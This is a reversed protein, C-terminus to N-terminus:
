APKGLRYRCVQAGNIQWELREVPAQMLNTLVEAERECVSPFDHALAALPCHHVVFDRQGRHEEVEVLFSISEYFQAVSGVREEPTPSDMVELARQEGQQIIDRIFEDVLEPSRQRLFQVLSRVVRQSLGPFLNAGPETLAYVHRRRGRGSGTERYSVLGDTRLPALAQRITSVTLHLYEALEEASLEGHRKLCVAIERGTRPLSGLTPAHVVDLSGPTHTVM